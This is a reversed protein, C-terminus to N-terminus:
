ASRRWAGRSLGLYRYATRESCKYHSMLARVVEVTTPFRGEDVRFRYVAGAVAEGYACGTALKV